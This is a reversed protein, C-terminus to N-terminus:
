VREKAKGRQKRVVRECDELGAEVCRRLREMETKLERMERRVGEMEDTRERKRRERKKIEM